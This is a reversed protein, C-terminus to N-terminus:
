FDGPVRTIRRRASGGSARNMTPATECYRPAATAAVSNSSSAGLPTARSRTSPAPAMITSSRREHRRRKWRATSPLAAAKPTDSAAM